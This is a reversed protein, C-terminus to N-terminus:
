ASQITATGPDTLTFTSPFWLYVNGEFTVVQNMMIKEAHEVTTSGFGQVTINCQAPQSVFQVLQCDGNAVVNNCVEYSNATKQEVIYGSRIETDFPLWANCQIQQGNNSTNGIFNPSIPRGM